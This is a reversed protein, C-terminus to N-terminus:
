IQSDSSQGTAELLVRDLLELIQRNSGGQSILVQILKLANFMSWAAAFLQANAKAEVPNRGKVGCPDSPLFGEEVIVSENERLDGCLDAASSAGWILGSSNDVLISKTVLAPANSEDGSSDGISSNPTPLGPASSTYVAISCAEGAEDVENDNDYDYVTVKAPAGSIEVEDVLGGRVRIIISCRSPESITPSTESIM